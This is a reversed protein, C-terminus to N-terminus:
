SGLQYRVFRVVKVEGGLKAGAAKLLAAVTLKNDRLMVQDLLVWQQYFLKNIKGEVIKEIQAEPKGEKKLIEVHIEKEKAIDAAPVEERALYKPMAGVIQLLLDKALEALEPSKAAADNPASLEILAGNKAPVAPDTQHAYGAVLGPGKLEFRDFRRLAMNEGLKGILPKVYEETAAEASKLSGACAKEALTKVLAQFDAGKAVFDTESNIEIIAGRQGDTKFAVAGEKTARQSKKAADAMGKKRLITMAAALDGKAEDLARKCDMMGAGTKERLEKILQTADM